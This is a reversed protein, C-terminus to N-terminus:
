LFDKCKEILERFNEYFADRMEKTPFALIANASALSSKVIRNECNTICYKNLGSKWDPQWPKGLGMQEGAIKWYANRALLLNALSDMPLGIMTAPIYGHTIDPLNLIKNCSSMCQPYLVEKLRMILNGDIDVGIYEYGKPIEIKIVKTNNIDKTEIKM